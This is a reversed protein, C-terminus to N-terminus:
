LSLDDLMLPENSFNIYMQRSLPHEKEFDQICDWTRLFDKKKMGYPVTITHWSASLKLSYLTLVNWFQDETIYDKVLNPFSKLYYKEALVEIQKHFNIWEGKQEHYHQMVIRRSEFTPNWYEQKLLYKPPSDESLSEKTLWYENRIQDVDERFSDDSLLYQFYPAILIARKEQEDKKLPRKM